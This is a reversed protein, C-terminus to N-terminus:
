PKPCSVTAGNAAAWRCIRAVASWGREGWSEVAADYSAQALPDTVIAATPVPKAEVRM